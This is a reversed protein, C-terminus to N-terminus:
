QTNEERLHGLAEFVATAGASNGMKLIEADVCLSSVGKRPLLTKSPSVSFVHPSNPFHTAIDPSHKANRLADDLPIGAGDRALGRMADHTRWADRMHLPSLLAGRVLKYVLTGFTKSFYGSSKKSTKSNNSVASSSTSSSTDDDDVSDEINDISVSVGDWETDELVRTLLVLVHTCGDAGAACVPVPEMVAADVLRQGRHKVPKSGAFLPVAASAKLSRKLDIKDKFPSGLIVPTLTDLSTAVIQFDLRSSLVNGFNLGRGTVGADMVEDVLYGVDMVPKRGYKSGMLRASKKTKPLRTIDLFRGDVLDEEYAAIGEPQKALFYTLNMAGASSGYVSDFCDYMGLDLLAGVAGASIVGKMGGGEVALGIKINDSRNGPTSGDKIRQQLAQLVPHNENTTNEHKNQKSDRGPYSSAEGRKWFQPVPTIGPPPKGKVRDCRATGGPRFQANQLTRIWPETDFADGVRTDILHTFDFVVPAEKEIARHFVSPRRRTSPCWRRTSAECVGRPRAVDIGVMGDAAISAVGQM